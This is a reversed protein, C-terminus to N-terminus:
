CHDKRITKANISGCDILCFLNTDAEARLAIESQFDPTTGIPSNKVSATRLQSTAGTFPGAKKREVLLSLPM